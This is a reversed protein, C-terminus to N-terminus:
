CCGEIPYSSQHLDVDASRGLNGLLLSPVHSNEKITSIYELERLATDVRDPPATEFIQRTSCSSSTPREVSRKIPVPTAAKGTKRLQAAGPNAIWQGIHRGCGVLTERRLQAHETAFRSWSIAL